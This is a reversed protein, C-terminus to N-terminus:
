LRDPTWPSGHTGITYLRQRSKIRYRVEYVKRGSPRVRLRFGKLLTDWVTVDSTPDATTRDVVSKTIKERKTEPM